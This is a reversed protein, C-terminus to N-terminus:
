ALARQVFIYLDTSLAFSNLVTKVMFIEIIIEKRSSGESVTSKKFFINFACFLIRSGIHLLMDSDRKIRFMIKHDEMLKSVNM